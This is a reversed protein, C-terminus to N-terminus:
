SRDQPKESAPSATSEASAVGPSEEGVETADPVSEATGRPAKRRRLNARLAKNLREERLKAARAAESVKGDAAMDTKGNTPPTSPTKSM